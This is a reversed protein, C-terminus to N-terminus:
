ARNSLNIHHMFNTVEYRIDNQYPMKNLKPNLDAGALNTYGVKYLSALIESSYCGIDLIPEDKKVHTEIFNVTALVDWSKLMDGMVVDSVLGIKRMLSKLRSDPVDVYSAGKKDLEQRAKNIQEKDQLVERALM